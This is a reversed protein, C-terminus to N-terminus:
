NGATAAWKLSIRSFIARDKLRLFPQEIFYYSASAVAITVVLAAGVREWAAFGALRNSVTYGIAPHYLYLSYSIQGLYRMPKADFWGWATTQSFTILQIVLVAVLLPEFAFGVVDRYLFGSSGSRVTYHSSVSLLGITLLPLYVKASIARWLPRLAGRKVIIATLCGVLIHDIRTDFARYIYAQDVHFVVSLVLRYVWVSGILGAVCWTLRKLNHRGFYFSLPWLLYFQEEIALSWTHSVYSGAPHFLGQYYNSVYFFASMVDPWCVKHGTVLLLFLWGGWFCYFAPFIRLARRKYFGSISVRGTKENEKLLLWTILFGSLVFFALVGLSAPICTSTFHYFIVLFVAIARLGDLAPIRSSSLNPIMSDASASAVTGITPQSM